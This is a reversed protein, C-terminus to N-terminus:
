VKCRESLYRFNLFKLVGRQRATASTLNFGGTLVLFLGGLDCFTVDKSQGFLNALSFGKIILTSVLHPLGADCSVLGM